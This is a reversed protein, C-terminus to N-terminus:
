HVVKVVIAFLTWTPEPREEATVLTLVEDGTELEPDADDTVADDEEESDDADADADADSESEEEPDAQPAEVVKEDDTSAISDDLDTSVTNEPLVTQENVRDTAASYAM